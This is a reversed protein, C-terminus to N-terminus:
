HRLLILYQRPLPKSNNDAETAMATHWSELTNRVHYDGKDIVGENEFNSVLYIITPALMTQLTPDKLVTRSMETKKRTKQKQKQKKKQSNYVM